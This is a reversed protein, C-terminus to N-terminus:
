ERGRNVALADEARAAALGRREDILLTLAFGIVLFLLLVFLATTTGWADKAFGFPITLVAALKFVLGWLGFFEGTRQVPTMFGVFARNASGLAGLGFGILNGLVWLPWRPFDAPVSVRERVYAFVIFAATTALWVALLLLVTRKHGVSDQWVTPVLTGVIGSVTIVAIFAVLQEGSFGFERALISAFMIIV